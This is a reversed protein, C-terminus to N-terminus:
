RTVSSLKMPSTRRSVNYPLRPTPRGGRVAVSLLNRYLLDGHGDLQLVVLRCPQFPPLNEMGGRRVTGQRKFLFNRGAHETHPADLFRTFHPGLQFGVFSVVRESTCHRRDLIQYGGNHIM